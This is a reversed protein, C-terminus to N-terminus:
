RKRGTLAAIIILIIGAVAIFLPTGSAPLGAASLVGVIIILAGVFFLLWNM